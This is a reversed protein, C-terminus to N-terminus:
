AVGWQAAMAQAIGDYTRAREMAREPSPGLKNQGSSTQNARRAMRGGPLENTSQLLPLNKLWLCTAKSADEGFQWPHIIQNPRRLASSLVGVPNELAIKEVPAKLLQWAFNIAAVKAEIRADGVLIGPRVNRGNLYCWHNGSGSVFTCDPHAILLDPKIKGIAEFVDCILHRPNGSADQVLDCSYADHGACLFADRVRGFRECGILVRM